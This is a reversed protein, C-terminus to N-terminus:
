VIGLGCLRNCKDEVEMFFFFFDDMRFNCDLQLFLIWVQIWNALYNEEM